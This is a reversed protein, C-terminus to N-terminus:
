SRISRTSSPTSTARAPGQRGDVYGHQRPPRRLRTRRRGRALRAEGADPGHQPARHGLHPVRYPDLARGRPEGLLALADVAPGGGLQRRDGALGALPGAEGGLVEGGHDQVLGVQADDLREGRLDARDVGHDGPIDDLGAVGRGGADREGERLQDLARSIEVPSGTSSNPKPPLREYAPCTTRQGYAPRAEPEGHVPPDRRPRELRGRPAKKKTRLTSFTPRCDQAVEEWSGAVAAVNGEFARRAPVVASTAPLPAHSTHRCSGRVGM